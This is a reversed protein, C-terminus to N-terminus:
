CVSSIPQSAISPLPASGHQLETGSPDTRGAGQANRRRLVMGSSGPRTCGGVLGDGRGRVKNPISKKSGDLLELLAVCSTNMTPQLLPGLTQTPCITALRLPPRGTRNEEAIIRWAEREALVKSLAYWQKTARLHKEDSWDACRNPARVLVRARENCRYGAALPLVVRLLVVCLCVGRSVCVCMCVCLPAREGDETYFYDLRRTPCVYVAAASSTLVVKRVTPSRLAARLVTRTGELAPRLLEAEADSEAADAAMHFFPSACHFVCACGAMAADFAAADGLLDASFLHLREGAGDLARLHATRGEDAADRVTARVTYGRALLAKVLWSAIFGGAGTVCVLKNAVTASSASSSSSTPTAGYGAVRAAGAAAFARQVDDRRSWAAHLPALEGLSESGSASAVADLFLAALLDGYNIADAAPSGGDLASKQTLIAKLARIHQSHPAGSRFFRLVAESALDARLQASSGVGELGGIRAVYRLIALPQSVEVQADNDFFVPLFGGTRLSNGFDRLQEEGHLVTSTLPQSVFALIGAVCAAFEAQAPTTVLEFRPEGPGDM